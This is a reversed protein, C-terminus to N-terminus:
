DETEQGNEDGAERMRLAIMAVVVEGDDDRVLYGRQARNSVPRVAAYAVYM